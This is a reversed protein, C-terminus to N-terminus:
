FSASAAIGSSGRGVYPTVRVGATDRVLISRPAAIGYILLALGVTHTASHMVIFSCGDQENDCADDVYAWTGVGPVYLWTARDDSDGDREEIDAVLLNVIYTTGAMIAGAIIPGRRVRSELHYGAPVPDGESYPLTAPPPPPVM